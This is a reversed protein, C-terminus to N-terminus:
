QNNPPLSIPFPMNPVVTVAALRFSRCAEGEQGRQAQDLQIASGRFARDAAAIYNIGDPNAPDLAIVAQARRQVVQWSQQAIAEEAEDHLSAIRLQTRDSDMM